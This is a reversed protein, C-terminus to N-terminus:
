RGADDADRAADADADAEQRFASRVGERVAERIDNRMTERDADSFAAVGPKGAMSKRVEKGCDDIDEQTMKAYPEFAPLSAALKQQSALMAPLLDCIKMAEVELKRGEAEMRKEIQDTNGQMLGNLTETLAKGALDAGKVGVAMGAEAVRIVDKRYALLLERQAPTVEIPKGEVLFGGQPTIAAPADQKDGGIRFRRGHEGLQIDVGDNLSLNGTELEQRAKRLAKDVSKGLITQPESSAATDTDRRAQADNRHCAALSPLAIALLLAPVRLSINM